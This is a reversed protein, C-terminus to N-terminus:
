KNSNVQKHKYTKLQSLPNQLLCKTYSCPKTCTPSLIKYSPFNHIEALCSFDRLAATNLGSSTLVITLRNFVAVSWIAEPILLLLLNTSRNHLQSSLIQCHINSCESNHWLQEKTKQVCGCKLNGWHRLFSSSSPTNKSRSILCSELSCTKGKILFTLWYIKDKNAHELM